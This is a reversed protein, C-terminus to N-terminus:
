VALCGPAPVDKLAPIALALLAYNFLSNWIQGKFFLRYSVYIWYTADSGFRTEAYEIVATGFGMELNYFYFGTSNIAITCVGFTLLYVLALRLVYAWTKDSPFCCFVFGAIFAFMGTSLGIWPMYVVGPNVFFGVLDGAFCAAFGCIPGTIIGALMAIVMTLSFQTDVFKIEFFNAVVAFTAIMAIYAIKHSKNKEALMDSLVLRQGFSRNKPEQSYSM